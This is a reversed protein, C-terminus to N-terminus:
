EQVVKLLVSGHAPVTGEYGETLNGLDSHGWLDRVGRVNNLQLDSWRVGAKQQEESRNFLAIATSGDWLPKSWVEMVGQKSVRHGQRGLADQDIAIVEKNLLIDKITTTWRDLHNNNLEVLLPAAMMCWLTMQTRYEETTMGGIGIQLDDPDNWGGTDKNDLQGSEDFGNSSMPGWSDRIDNTTRWLNAGVKGGWDTVNSRRGYLSLSFVIPRGSAQLAEGMKQYAAQMEAQTHYVKSASCWDYKLYDIGWAAYTKADEEEHGLSGAYGWCAAPGPSSYLGLKLGRSHVYDALAKMDPFRGNPHINGQADRRGQWGEDIQLYVYGADRLGTSVMEDAVKRVEADTTETFSGTGMPPVPALHNPPVDRLAPLPQREFAYSPGAAIIKLDRATARRCTYPYPKPDRSSTIVLQMEDGRVDGRFVRSGLSFSVSRGQVKLDKLSTNGQAQVIAGVVSGNQRTFVLRETFADPNPYGVVDPVPRVYPDPNPVIWTGVVHEAGAAAGAGLCVALTMGCLRAKFKYM